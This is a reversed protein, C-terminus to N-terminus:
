FNDFRTGSPVGRYKLNEVIGSQNKSVNYPVQFELFELTGTNEYKEYFFNILAGEGNGSNPVFEIGTNLNPVTFIGSNIINFSGLSGNIGTTSVNLIAYSNPTYNKLGQLYFTDGTKYGSGYNQIEAGTVKYLGTEIFSPNIKNGSIDIFSINAGPNINSGSIRVYQGPLVNKSDFGSISPVDLVKLNLYNSSVSADNYVYIKYKSPTIGSLTFGVFDDSLTNNIGSVNQSNAGNVVFNLSSNYINQGSIKIINKKFQEGSIFLTEGNIAFAGTPSSIVPQASQITFFVSM